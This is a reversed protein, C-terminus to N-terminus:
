LDLDDIETNKYRTYVLPMDLTYWRRNEPTIGNATIRFVGIKGEQTIFAYLSTNRLYHPKCDKNTEIDESAFAFNEGKELRLRALLTNM